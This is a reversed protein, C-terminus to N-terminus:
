QIIDELDKLTKTKERNIKRLVKRLNGNRIQQYLVTGLVGIGVLYMSSKIKM